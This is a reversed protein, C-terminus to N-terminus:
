RARIMGRRVLAAGMILLAGAVAGGGVGTSPLARGGTRRGLVKTPGNSSQEFFSAGGVQRVFGPLSVAGGRRTDSYAAVFAGTADIEVSM